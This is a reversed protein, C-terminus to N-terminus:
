RRVVPPSWQKPDRNSYLGVQIWWFVTSHRDGPVLAEWEDPELLKTSLLHVRGAESDM